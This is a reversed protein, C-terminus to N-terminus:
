KVVLETMQGRQAHGPLSCIITYTGSTLDVELTQPGESGSFVNTQGLKNGNSDLVTLNHPMQGQNTVTFQIKGAAVEKQSLDIAWERLTANISTESGSGGGQGDATAQTPTALDNTTGAPMQTPAEGMGDMSGSTDTPAPAASSDTTATTATPESAPLTATPNGGTDTGSGCAALATVMVAALTGMLAIRGINHRINMITQTIQM